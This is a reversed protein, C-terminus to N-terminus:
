SLRERRIQRPTTVLSSYRNVPASCRRNCHPLNDLYTINHEGTERFAVSLFETTKQEFEDVDQGGPFFCGMGLRFPFRSM